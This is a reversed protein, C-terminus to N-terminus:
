RERFACFIIRVLDKDDLLALFVVVFPKLMEDLEGKRAAQTGAGATDEFGFMYRMASVVLARVTPNPDQLRAELPPLFRAPNTATLKGLCSAAINLANEHSSGTDFLPQWLSEAIVELHSQSCHSVVQTILHTLPHFPTPISPTHVEKLAHMSLLRKDEDNQVHKVIVPLFREQSGLAINGIGLHTLWRMADSPLLLILSTGVAFAAASRVEESEAKFFGLSNDFVEPQNSM